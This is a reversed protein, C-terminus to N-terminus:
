QWKRMGRRGLFWCCGVRTGLLRSQFPWPLRSCLGRQQYFGRGITSDAKESPRQWDGGEGDGGLGAVVEGKSRSVKILVVQFYTTNSTLHSQVVPTAVLGQRLNSRRLRQGSGTIASSGWNEGARERYFPMRFGLM